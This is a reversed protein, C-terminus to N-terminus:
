SLLMYVSLEQKVDPVLTDRYLPGKDKGGTGIMNKLSIRLSNIISTIELTM